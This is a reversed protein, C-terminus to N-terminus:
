PASKRRSDSVQQRVRLLTNLLDWFQHAQRKLRYDTLAIQEDLMASVRSDFTAEPLRLYARAEAGDYHVTAGAKRAIKLMPKNERLAHIFFLQVGENTAHRVAHEFLKSGYGRGRASPLVSVGFEACADLSADVSHALHTVAELVLRPSYIGFVADHKFDLKDAYDRIQDDSAHYGFRLYRDDEDLAMLHQAVRGRHGAGLRRVRGAWQAKAPLPGAASVHDLLDSQRARPESSEPKSTM